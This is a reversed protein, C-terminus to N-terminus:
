FSDFDEQSALEKYKCNDNSSEIIIDMVDGYNMDDLDSIKLGVQLCRLTFLATNM